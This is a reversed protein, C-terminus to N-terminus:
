PGKKQEKLARKEALEKQKLKHRKKAELVKREKEIARSQHKQEKQLKNQETQAELQDQHAKIAAIKPPSFFMTQRPEDKPFLDMVKGQKRRGKENVLASKIGAVKHELIETKIALKECVRVLLEVDPSLKQIKQQIAKITRRIARVFGPTNRRIEDDSTFPSPIKLKFKNLVRELQFPHIGAAAFASFINSKNLATYWTTKFM